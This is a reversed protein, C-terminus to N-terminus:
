KAGAMQGAFPTVEDESLPRTFKIWHGGDYPTATFDQPKLKALDIRVVQGEMPSRQGAEAYQMIRGLDSGAQAHGAAPVGQEGIDRARYVFRPVEGQGPVTITTGSAGGPAKGAAQAAKRARILALSDELQQTLDDDASGPATKEESQIKAANQRLRGLLDDAAPGPTEAPTGQPAVQPAPTETPPAKTEIPAAAQQKAEVVDPFEPRGTQPDTVVTRPAPNAAPSAKIQAGLDELPAMKAAAAATIAKQTRLTTALPVNVDPFYTQMSLTKNAEAGIDGFNHRGMRTNELYSAGLNDLEEPSFDDIIKSILRPGALSPKLQSEQTVDIGRSKAIKMLNPTDQGTLVQRLASDGSLTRPIGAGTGAAPTEAPAPTEATPTAASSGVEAPITAPGGTVRDPLGFGEGPIRVQPLLERGALAGAAGGVEAGVHGGLYGGVAAGATGGITGPAKALGKNIGRVTARVAPAVAAPVKPLVEGAIEGTKGYVAGGTVQGVGTGLAEPLVSAAGKPTVKGSAYDTGAEIAQKLGLRYAIRQEPKLGLESEEMTPPDVIAHYLQGPTDTIAHGANQGGAVLFRTIPGLVPHNQAWAETTARDQEDISSADQAAPQAKAHDWGSFNAPLTDPAQDWQQFNAPLTQPPTAPQTSMQPGFKAGVERGMEPQVDAAAPNSIDMQPTGSWNGHQFTVGEPLRTPDIAPDTDARPQIHDPNPFVPGNFNAPAGQDDEDLGAAIRQQKTLAAYEADTLPRSRQAPPLQQYQEWTLTPAAAM